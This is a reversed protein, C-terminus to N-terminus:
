NKKKLGEKVLVSGNSCIDFTRQLMRYFRKSHGSAKEKFSTYSDVLYIGTRPICMKEYQGPLYQSMSFGYQYGCNISEACVDVNVNGFPYSISRVHHHIKKEILKKSYVLEEQLDGKDLRTLDTHTLGHSGIEWGFNSLKKIQDWYLHNFRLWGLNIDWTNLQGVYVPNIFVTAPISYKKLIPFAYNFISEYGDDFTLCLYNNKDSQAAYDVATLFKYGKNHAYEIQRAFQNPTVRTIGWDFRSDVM